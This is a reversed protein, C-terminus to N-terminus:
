QWSSFQLGGSSPLFDQELSANKHWGWTEARGEFATVMDQLACGLEKGLAVGLVM